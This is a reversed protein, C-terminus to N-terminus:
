QAPHSPELVVDEKGWRHVSQCHACSMIYRGMINMPSNFLAEDMTVGTSLLQQTVPCRIM